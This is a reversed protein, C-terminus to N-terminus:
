CLGIETAAALVTCCCRLAGAVNRDCNGVSVVVGVGVGISVGASASFVGLFVFKHRESPEPKLLLPLMQCGQYTKEPGLFIKFRFNQVSTCFNCSPVIAAAAAAAVLYNFTISWKSLTKVRLM